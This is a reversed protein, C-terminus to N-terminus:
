SSKSRHKNTEFRIEESYFRETKWFINNGKYEWIKMAIVEIGSNGEFIFIWLGYPYFYKDAIMEDSIYIEIM